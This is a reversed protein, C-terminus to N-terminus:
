ITHSLNNFEETNACLFMLDLVSNLDQSNNIYQTPVQNIFLLLELNFSDAIERLIDAHTSHHSYLLDWNNDKINFDGIMILINNLNVETDKLYKLATQHDDSYINIIFCLTM